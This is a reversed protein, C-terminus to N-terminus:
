ILPVAQIDINITKSGNIKVAVIRKHFSDDNKVFVFSMFAGGIIKVDQM